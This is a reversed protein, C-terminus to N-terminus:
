VMSEKCKHCYHDLKLREIAKDQRVLLERLEKNKNQLRRLAIAFCIWIVVYVIMLVLFEM